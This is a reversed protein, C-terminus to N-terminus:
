NSDDRQALATIRRRVVLWGHLCDTRRRTSERVAACRVMAGDAPRRWFPLEVRDKRHSLQQVPQNHEGSSSRVAPKQVTPPTAVSPGGFNLYNHEAKVSWAPTLAQEVGLRMTAGFRGYDVHTKEQPWDFEHNNFVDGRNNQWAVCRGRSLGAHPGARWVRLRHPRDQHCLRQPRSADLEVCWEATRRGITASRAAPSSCQPISSMAM